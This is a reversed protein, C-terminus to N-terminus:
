GGSVRSTTDASPDPTNLPFSFCGGRGNCWPGAGQGRLVALVERCVRRAESASVAGRGARELSLVRPFSLPTPAYVARMGGMDSLAPRLISAILQQKETEILKM